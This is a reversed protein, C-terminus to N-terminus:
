AADGQKVPSGATEDGAQRKGARRAALSALLSKPSVALKDLRLDEPPLGFALGMFQTYYLVPIEFKTGAAREAQNQRLDLNMHCLPCAAAIADAGFAGATSLIRAVLSSTVDKRPIGMAAGCCETKLPFPIVEAGLAALIRDMATPNEPDDFKMAEAPRSMLCGYYPAVRVGELPRTVNARIADPGIRELLVQLVSFTDPLDAGGGAVAPTPADLLEDAAAKFAADQMRLRALKLNSLCSPCPTIVGEAGTNGALMLNRAALAASLVADLSHAPTSGCCNWDEIEAFSINLARCVARTSTEYEM